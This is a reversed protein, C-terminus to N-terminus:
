SDLLRLSTEVDEKTLGLDPDIRVLHSKLHAMDDDDDLIVFRDIKEHESLWAQILDGRVTGRSPNKIRIPTVSSVLGTFGHHSLLLQLDSSSYLIRWASSIVLSAQSRALLDNLLAVAKPDLARLDELVLGESLDGPNNNLIQRVTLAEEPPVSSHRSM